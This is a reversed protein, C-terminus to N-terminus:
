IWFNCPWFISNLKVRVCTEQASIQLDM